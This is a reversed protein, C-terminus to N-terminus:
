KQDLQTTTDLNSPPPFVDATAGRLRATVMVYGYGIGSCFYYLLHLPVCLCAFVLGRQRFFFSYLTRNLVGVGILALLALVLLERRFFAGALAIVAVGVLAISVRQATSINLDNVVHKRAMILRSWPIARCFIDTRIVSRLTWRKLHTGQLTKDLFIRYGADRLRYGLEIDEISARPFNREDFGGLAMFATRRIAGCGAWFTSSHPNGTQHTFHHLLNRYQSILAPARPRTDYSGFLAVLDPQSAFVALVREIAGPAIVVDADVFFLIDGSAHRAGYNRAAAPGSNKQLRLVTVGERSAITPTEDSSADDVVLIEAEPYRTGQLAVLCEKLNQPDNYVPVIISIKSENGTVRCEGKEGVYRKIPGV